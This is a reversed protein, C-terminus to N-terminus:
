ELMRVLENKMDEDIERYRAFAKSGEKHGSLVGVLNPDKVQKYINGIFSRRALHSSAIENLPLIEAERTLPNLTTVPRTLGAALFIRKIARNYQQQSTFPLLKDGDNDAYKQLIEKAISNLPVRVTIPNGDKTKRAIYEVAGNIINKKTMKQLDSVRCGILCHFVFVDRQIALDPHRSLNTKHLKNRENITIYYPTGYVCEEVSFNEFPYNSTKKEKISWKFFTRIKTFMDNITNQSRKEPKRSEPYARYLEPYKYFLKYESRFFKDMDRLTDGTIDDLMLIFDDNSNLKVYLEFRQLARYIVKFNNKRVKSLKHKLLFEDFVEFFTQKVPVNDKIPNLTKRVEEDLWDSTLGEKNSHQDFIELLLAKRDSISKNFDRRQNDNYPIRKKIIQEKRDFNNGIVEIESVHFLQIERGASLRFRVNTPSNMKTTRIFAKVTAM